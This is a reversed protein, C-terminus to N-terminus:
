NQDDDDEKKDPSPSGSPKTDGTKSKKGPHSSHDEPIGFHGELESLKNIDIVGVINVV